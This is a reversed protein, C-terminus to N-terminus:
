ILWAVMRKLNLSLWGIKPIKLLAKGQIKQATVLEDAVNNADGQTVFELPEASRNIDIVRHLVQKTSDDFLIVDGIQIDEPPCKQVIVVDGAKFSPEMSVGAVLITRIGFVGSNFWVLSVGILAYYLWSYSAGRDQIEEKELWTAMMSVLLLIGIPLLTHLFGSEMGTFDPLVPSLREFALPILRVIIAMVPGGIWVLYTLLLSQSLAPLITRVLGYLPTAGEFFQRYVGPPIVLVSFIIVILIFVLGPSRRSWRALLYARGTELAIVGMTLSFLNGLLAPFRHQYPSAAFGLLWGAILLAIVQLLGATVGLSVLFRNIKPKDIHEDLWGWLAYLTVDAWLLPLLVYNRLETSILRSIPSFQLLLAGALGIAVPVWAYKADLKLSNALSGNKLPM